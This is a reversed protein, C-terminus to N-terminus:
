VIWLPNGGAKAVITALNPGAEAGVYSAVLEETENSDLASLQLLHAGVALCDALLLDLEPTRPAPRLTAVVALPVHRLRHIIAAAATLGSDDAWHLDELVLVVPRDGCELEVLDIIEEVVRFRADIATSQGALAGGLLLRGIRARRADAARPRLDLADAVVGFPRTREFPHAAGQFVVM